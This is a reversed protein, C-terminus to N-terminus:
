GNIAAADVDVLPYDYSEEECPTGDHIDFLPLVAQTVLALLVDQGETLPARKVTAGHSAPYKLSHREVDKQVESLKARKFLWRTRWLEVLHQTAKSVPENAEHPFFYDPRSEQGLLIRRFNRALPVVYLSRPSGSQLLQDDPFGLLDLAERIKRMKPNVGEGFIGHVESGEFHQELYIQMEQLTADSFHFTGYTTSHQLQHYGYTERDDPAAEAVDAVRIKIRNYQSSGHSFLGTTCLLVLHPERTVPQGKMASAIVSSAEHYREYYAKQVEPSTLLMSVMKGGLLANYPAIAGAVSIDMMNIGVRRSKVHRVLRGVVERFAGSDLANIFVETGGTELGENTFGVRNFVARIHLLKGLADARKSRYLPSGVLTEWDEKGQQPRYQTTLARQQHLQREKISLEKLRKVVVENPEEREEPSLVGESKFDDWFIDCIAEELSQLLWFADKLQPSKCLQKLLSAREWGIWSDREGQQVISSSLAAIGIVAHNPAAADRVLIMMSRGPTSRSPTLWTYRFYRWIDTLKLGTHPCCEKAKVFQLYPKICRRVVDEGRKEDDSHAANKLSLALEEGDRMLSFISHAKTCQGRPRPKEMDALFERVAQSELQEDRAVALARRIREQEEERSQSARPQCLYITEEECRILWGQNMLDAVLSIAVKAAQYTPSKSEDAHRSWTSRWRKLESSPITFDNQNNLVALEACAQLVLSAELPALNNSLVFWASQHEGCALSPSLPHMADLSPVTPKNHQLTM